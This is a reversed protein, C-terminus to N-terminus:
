RIVGRKYDEAIREAIKRVGHIVPACATVGYKNEYLKVYKEVDGRSLNEHNITIAYVRRGSLLEILRVYRDLSPMPYEPFGDLHKRGPAHQLIIIQPQLLAMIEFSGPFVPHLISGQGPVIIIDPKRERYARVVEHELGGTIFDNIMADLVIGYDAGQMWATQGTGVFVTNIGMKNLEESLMIATTRKGIASDTGLVVIKISNVEKIEGTYFIKMDRFIKRVDILEVGYARALNNLEPDDSLFEHLGSVINLGNEIAHKIIARYDHPLKGGPTAVGIILYKLNPNYELAEDLSAYFPIGRRIGDLLEGADLGSFRSDIVGRIRFKKSYRALGHATKADTSDFYGEALIVADNM